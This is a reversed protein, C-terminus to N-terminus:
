LALPIVAAATILPAALLGRLVFGRWRISVGDARLRDHWLLTALSAWPTILSGANVGILLAALREPSGAVPELLLYAPHAPGGHHRLSLFATVVVALIVVLGWLAATRGRGWRALRHAVLDFVGAIAALEAVVTIATVFLLIPWVREAVEIADGPTAVGFLLASAAAALLGAGIM